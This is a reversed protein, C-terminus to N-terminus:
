GDAMAGLCAEIEVDLMRFLTEAIGKWAAADAARAAAAAYAAARAAAKLNQDGGEELAAIVGNCADVVKQWYDPAPSPQVPTAAELAQRVAAVLFGTRVRDWAAEDLVWWRRARDLLAGMFWSVESGAIGDDISPVLHALWSPMLEAPCDSSSNIDPGFAALACVFEHGDDNRRWNHQIIREEALATQAMALRSAITLSM